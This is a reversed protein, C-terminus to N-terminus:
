CRGKFLKKVIKIAQDGSEAKFFSQKKREDLFLFEQLIQSWGGLNKILIVPKNLRYAITVEQLTGAGGGLMILVDSMNVLIAEEGATYMGSVIEVDNYSNSTNRSNGTVIGVTIGGKEKAGKAAELMIGTKGGTIVTWNNIACLQGIQFANNYVKESIVTGGPYEDLGAYGIIGIQLNM